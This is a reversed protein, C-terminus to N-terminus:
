GLLVTFVCIWIREGLPDVIYQGLKFLSANVPDDVVNLREAMPADPIDYQPFMDFQGHQSNFAIVFVIQRLVQLGSKLSEQIHYLVMPIFVRDVALRAAFRSLATLL